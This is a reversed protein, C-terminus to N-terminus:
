NGPSLFEHNLPSDKVADSNSVDNQKWDYYSPLVSQRSINLSTLVLAYFCTTKDLPLLLSDTQGQSQLETLGSALM